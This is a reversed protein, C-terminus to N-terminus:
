KECNETHVNPKCSIHYGPPYPTSKKERVNVLLKNHNPSPGHKTFQGLVVNMQNHQLTLRVKLFYSPIIERVSLM